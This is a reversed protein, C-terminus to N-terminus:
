HHCLEHNPLCGNSFLHHRLVGLSALVHTIWHWMERAYPEALLVVIVRAMCCVLM